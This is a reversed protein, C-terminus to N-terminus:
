RSSRGPPTWSNPTLASRSCATFARLGRRGSWCRRARSRTTARGSASVALPASETQNGGMLYRGNVESNLLTLAEDLRASSTTKATTLNIDGTGYNGPAAMARQQGELADLREMAKNLVTLRLNVTQQSAQYGEITSVRARLSLSLSRTSGMDALTAAKKGTGFQVQLEDMRTQMKGISSFANQLPFMSRNVIAM